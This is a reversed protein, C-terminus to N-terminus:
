RRRTGTGHLGSSLSYPLSAVLLVRPAPHELHGAWSRACVSDRNCGRGVRVQLRHLFFLGFAALFVAVGLVVVVSDGWWSGGRQQPPALGRPGGGGSRVPGLRSGRPLGPPVAGGGGSSAQALPQQQEDQVTVVTQTLRNHSGQRIMARRQRPHQWLRGPQARAARRHTDKPSRPATVASQKPGPHYAHTQHAKSVVPAAPCRPRPCGASYKRVGRGACTSSAPRPDVRRILISHRNSRTRQIIV